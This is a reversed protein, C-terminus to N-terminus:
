LSTTPLSDLCFPSIEPQRKDLRIPTKLIVPSGSLVMSSKISRLNTFDEDYRLLIFYTSFLYFTSKNFLFTALSLPITASRLDMAFYAERCTLDPYIFSARIFSFLDARSTTFNTRPLERAVACRRLRSTKTCSTFPPRTPRPAEWSPSCASEPTM